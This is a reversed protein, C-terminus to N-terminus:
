FRNILNLISHQYEDNDLYELENHGGFLEFFQKPDNAKEFLKRGMKFPIIEDTQSHCILVPCKIKDIKDISNLKYRLLFNIPMGPFMLKGMDEASTLTSELILGGCDTKVALDIAPVGGLSRGFLIIDQPLVSKENLLWNYAAKSDVYMNEESPKGDSQGYGRYDFLFLNIKNKVFFQITPIRNSINGGNGHFLLVTKKVNTDTSPFYWGHIKESENVNIFINEFEIKWNDPSDIITQSPFFVMKHQNFYIYLSFILFTGGFIIIIWYLIKLM